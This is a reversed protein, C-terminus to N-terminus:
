GEPAFFAVSFAGEAQALIILMELQAIVAPKCDVAILLVVLAPDFDIAEL